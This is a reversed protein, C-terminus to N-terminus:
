GYVFTSFICVVARPSKLLRSLVDLPTVSNRADADAPAQDVSIGSKETAKIDAGIPSNFSGVSSSGSELALPAQSDNVPEREKAEDPDAAPDVGWPIADKREIILLRAILDFAAFAM